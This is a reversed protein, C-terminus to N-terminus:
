PTIVLEFDPLFDFRWTGEKARLQARLQRAAVLSLKLTLTRGELSVSPADANVV